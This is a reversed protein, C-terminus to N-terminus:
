GGVRATLLVRVNRAVKRGSYSVFEPPNPLMAFWSLGSFDSAALRPTVM